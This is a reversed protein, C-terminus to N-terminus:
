RVPPTRRLGLLGFGLLLATGPEPVPEPDTLTPSLAAEDFLTWRSDSRSELLVEPTVGLLSPITLVFAEAGPEIRTWVRLSVAGDAGVAFAVWDPGVPPAPALGMLSLRLMDLNNAEYRELSKVDEPIDIGPLGPRMDPARRSWVREVEAAPDVGPQGGERPGAVPTASAIQAGLAWVCVLLWGRM